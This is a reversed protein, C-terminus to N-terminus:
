LSLWDTLVRLIHFLEKPAMLAYQVLSGHIILTDWESLSPDKMRTGKFM